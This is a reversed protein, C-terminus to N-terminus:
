RLEVLKSELSIIHKKQQLLIGMFVEDFPSLNPGKEKLKGQLL